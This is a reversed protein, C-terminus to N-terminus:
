KSSTRLRVFIRLTKTEKNNRGPADQFGGFYQSITDDLPFDTAQRLATSTSSADIPLIANTSHVKQLEKLLNLLLARMPFPTTDASPRNIDIRVQLQVLQKADEDPHGSPMVPPPTDDPPQTPPPQSGNPGGHHAVFM